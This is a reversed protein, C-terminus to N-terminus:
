LEFNLKIRMRVPRTNAGARRWVARQREIEGEERRGEGERGGEREGLLYFLPSDSAAFDTRHSNRSHSWVLDSNWQALESETRHSM